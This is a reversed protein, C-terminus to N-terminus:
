ESEQRARRGILYIAGSGWATFVIAPVLFRLYTEWGPTFLGSVGGAASLAVMDFVAHVIIVSWITGARERMAAFILGVSVAFIAQSGAITWPIGVLTGAILHILGFLASTIIARRWLSTGELALWLVGRFIAEETFGVLLAIVGWGVFDVAIMAPKDPDLFALLGLALLPLGIVFSALDMRPGFGAAAFMKLRWLALAILLALVGKSILYHNIESAPGLWDVLLGSLGASWAITFLFLAIFLIALRQHSM